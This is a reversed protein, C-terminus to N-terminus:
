LAIHQNHEYRTMNVQIHKTIHTVNRRERGSAEQEAIINAKKKTKKRSEVLHRRSYLTNVRPM